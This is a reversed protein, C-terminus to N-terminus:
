KMEFLFTLNQRAIGVSAAKARVGPFLCSLSPWVYMGRGRGERERGWWVGVDPPTLVLEVGWLQSWQGDMRIERPKGKREIVVIATM